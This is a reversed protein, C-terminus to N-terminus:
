RSGGRPCATGSGARPAPAPASGHRATGAGEQTGAVRAAGPRARHRSSSRRAWTFGSRPTGARPASPQAGEAADRPPRRAAGPHHPSARHGPPPPRAGAQHPQPAQAAQHQAAPPARQAAGRGAAAAGPPDPAGLRHRADGGEGHRLPAGLAVIDGLHSYPVAPIPPQPGPPHRAAERRPLASAGRAVAPAPLRPARGHNLGMETPEAERLHGQSGPPIVWGAPGRHLKGPALPPRPPRRRGRLM